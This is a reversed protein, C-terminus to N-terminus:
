HTITTHDQAAQQQIMQTITAALQQAIGPNLRVRAVPEVPLPSANIQPQGQIANAPEPPLVHTFTVLVGFPGVTLTFGDASVDPYDAM